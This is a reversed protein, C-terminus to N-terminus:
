VGCVMFKDAHLM